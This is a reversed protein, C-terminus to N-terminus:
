GPASHPYTSTVVSWFFELYINYGVFNKRNACKVNEKIIWQLTISRSKGLQGKGEPKAVVNQMRKESGVHFSYLGGMVDDKM